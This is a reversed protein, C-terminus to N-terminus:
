FSSLMGGFIHCMSHGCDPLNEVKHGIRVANEQSCFVRSKKKNTHLERFIIPFKSIIYVPFMSSEPNKGRIETTTIGVM